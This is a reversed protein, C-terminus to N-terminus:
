GRSRGLQGILSLILIGSMLACPSVAHHMVLLLWKEPALAFFVVGALRDTLGGAPNVEGEELWWGAAVNALLYYPAVCM